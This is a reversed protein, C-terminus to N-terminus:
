YGIENEEPPLICIIILVNYINKCHKFAKYDYHEETGCKKKRRLFIQQIMALASAIYINTVTKLSNNTTSGKPTLTNM